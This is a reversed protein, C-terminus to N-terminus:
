LEAISISLDSGDGRSELAVRASVKWKPHGAVAGGEIYCAVANEGPFSEADGLWDRVADEALACRETAPLAPLVFRAEVTPADCVMWCLRNFGYKDILVLASGDPPEFQEIEERMSPLPNSSNIRGGILWWFSLLGVPVLLVLLWALSRRRSPAKRREAAVTM